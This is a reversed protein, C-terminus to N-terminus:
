QNAELQKLLDFNQKNELRSLKREQQKAQTNILIFKDKVSNIDKNIQEKNLLSVRVSM